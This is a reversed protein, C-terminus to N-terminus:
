ERRFGNSYCVLHPADSGPAFFRWNEAPEGESTGRDPLVELESGNEFRILLHGASGTHVTLVVMDEREFLERLMRDRDGEDSSMSDFDDRSGVHTRGEHWIRWGCEVHLAYEGVEHQSGDGRQRPLRRGFAFMEMDVARGSGWMRLGELATVAAFIPERPGGGAIRLSGIFGISESGDVPVVAGNVIVFGREYVDQLSAGVYRPSVEIREITRGNIQSDEDVRVVLLDESLAEEEVSGYLARDGGLDLDYPEDVDVRVRMLADYALAQTRFDL